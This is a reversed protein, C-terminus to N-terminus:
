ETTTWQRIRARVEDGTVGGRGGAQEARRVAEDLAALLVPDDEDCTHAAWNSGEKALFAAWSRMALRRLDEASLGDLEAEIQSLSMM